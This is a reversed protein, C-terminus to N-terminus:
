LPAGLSGRVAYNFLYDKARQLSPLKDYAVLCPHTKADADKVEGYVWGDAIKQQSWSEHLQRASKGALVMRVGLVASKRQWEPSQDWPLHSYDGHAASFARNVEHAVGAVKALYDAVDQPLQYSEMAWLKAFANHQAAFRTTKDDAGGVRTTVGEVQLGNKLTLTCSLWTAGEPAEFSEEVIEAMIAKHFNM